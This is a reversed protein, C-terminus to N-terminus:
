QGGAVVLLLLVCVVVALVVAVLAAMGLVSETVVASANITQTLDFDFDFDFINIISGGSPLPMGSILEIPRDTQRDTWGDTLGDLWLCNNHWTSHGLWQDSQSWKPYTWYGESYAHRPM